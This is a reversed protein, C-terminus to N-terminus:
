KSYGMSSSSSMHSGSMQHDKKSACASLGLTAAAVIALAIYKIM